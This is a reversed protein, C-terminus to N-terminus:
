GASRQLLRQSGGNEIRHLGSPLGGVGHVAYFRDTRRTLPPVTPNRSPTAILASYTVIWVGTNDSFSLM